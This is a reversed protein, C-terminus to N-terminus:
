NAFKSPRVVLKHQEFIEQSKALCKGKEIGDMYIVKCMPVKRKLIPDNYFWFRIGQINGYCTFFNGIRAEEDLKEKETYFPRPVDEDRANPYSYSVYVSRPEDYDISKDTKFSKRGVPSRSRSRDRKSVFPPSRSRSRGRKVPFPSKGAEEEEIPINVGCADKISNVLWKMDIILDSMLVAKINCSCQKGTLTRHIACLGDRIEKNVELLSM